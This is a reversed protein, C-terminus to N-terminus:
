SVTGRREVTRVDPERKRLGALGALGLLGLLGWDDFGGDDEEPSQAAEVQNAAGTAADQAIAAGGTFLGFALFAGATALKAKNIL